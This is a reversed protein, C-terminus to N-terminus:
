FGWRSDYFFGIDMLGIFM